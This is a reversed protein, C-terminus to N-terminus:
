EAIVPWGVFMGRFYPIAKEKGIWRVYTLEKDSDDSYLNEILVGDNCGCKELFAFSAILGQIIFTIQWVIGCLELNGPLKRACVSSLLCFAYRASSTCTFM